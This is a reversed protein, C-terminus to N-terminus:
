KNGEGNIALILQHDILFELKEALNVPDPLSEEIDEITEELSKGNIIDRIFVFQLHSVWQVTINFDELWMVAWCPEALRQPLPKDRITFDILRDIRFQSEFIHLSPHLQLRVEGQATALLRQIEERPLSFGGDAKRVEHRMAEFAGYDHVYPYPDLEPIENLFNPFDDGWYDLCGTKPCNDIASIYKRAISDATQNGLLKWLGPYRIQLNKILVERVNNQYIDLREAPLSSSIEDLLKAPRDGVMASLFEKQLAELKM